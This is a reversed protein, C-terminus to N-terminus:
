VHEQAMHVAYLPLCKTSFHRNKARCALCEIPQPLDDRKIVDPGILKIIWEAEEDTDVILVRDQFIYWREEFPHRIYHTENNLHNLRIGPELGLHRAIEVSMSDLLPGSPIDGIADPDGSQGHISTERQITSSM